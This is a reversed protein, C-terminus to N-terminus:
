NCFQDLLKSEDINNTTLGSYFNESFSSFNNEPESVLKHIHKIGYSGGVNLTKNKRETIRVTPQM